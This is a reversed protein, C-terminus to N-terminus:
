SVSLDIEKGEVGFDTEQSTIETDIYVKVDVEGREGYKHLIATLTRKLLSLSEKQVRKVKREMEAAMKEELAKNM